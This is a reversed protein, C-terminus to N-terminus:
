NTKHKANIITENGYKFIVGHAAGPCANSECIQKTTPSPVSAMVGHIVGPYANGEVCPLNVGGFPLTYM